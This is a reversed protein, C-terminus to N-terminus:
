ILIVFKSLIGKQFVNKKSSIKDPIEGSYIPCLRSGLPTGEPTLFDFDAHAVRYM